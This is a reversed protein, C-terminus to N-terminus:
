SELIVTVVRPPRSGPVGALRVWRGGVTKVYADNGETDRSTIEPMTLVAEVDADSIQRQQMRVRAHRTYVIPM